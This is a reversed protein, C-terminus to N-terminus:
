YIIWTVSLYPLRGIAFLEAAQFLSYRSDNIAGVCENEYVFFSTGASLHFSTVYPLIHALYQGYFDSGYRTRIFTPPLM